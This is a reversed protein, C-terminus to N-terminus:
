RRRMQGAIRYNHVVLAAYAGNLAVLALVARKKRTRALDHGLYIASAAIASKLIVFGPKHHALRGILPNAERAGASIAEFTSHADLAQTLATSVYLSPMVVSLRRRAPMVPSPEPQLAPLAVVPGGTAPAAERSTSQRALAPQAALGWVFLGALAAM